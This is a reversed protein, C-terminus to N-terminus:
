SNKSVQSQRIESKNKKLNFPSIILMYCQLVKSM